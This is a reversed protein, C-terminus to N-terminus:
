GAPLNNPRPMPEGHIGLAKEMAALVVEEACAQFELRDAPSIYRNQASGHAAKKDRVENMDRIVSYIPLKQRYGVQENPDIGVAELKGFFRRDDKPPDGIIAEVAKFANQLADEFKSQSSGTAVFGVSEALVESIGGPAIWFNEYSKRLFRLADFLASNQYGVAAIRWAREHADLCGCSISVLQQETDFLREAQFWMECGLQALVSTKVKKRERALEDPVRLVLPYDLETFIGGIIALGYAFAEALRIAAQDDAKYRPFRFLYRAQERHHTEGINLRRIRVGIRSCELSVARMHRAAIRGFAPLLFGRRTPIAERADFPLGVQLVLYWVKSGGGPRISVTEHSRKAMWM